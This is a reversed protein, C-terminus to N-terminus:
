RKCAKMPKECRKKNTETSPAFPTPIILLREPSGHHFTVQTSLEREKGRREGRREEREGKREEREIKREGREGKREEGKTEEVKREREREREGCKREKKKEM